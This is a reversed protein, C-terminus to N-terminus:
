ALDKSRLRDITRKLADCAPKSDATDPNGLEIEILGIAFKITIAEIKRSLRSIVEETTETM